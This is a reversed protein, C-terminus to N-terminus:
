VLAFFKCVEWWVYNKYFSVPSNRILLANFTSIILTNKKVFNQNIIKTLSVIRNCNIIKNPSSIDYPLTDWAPITLINCIPLSLSVFDKIKSM